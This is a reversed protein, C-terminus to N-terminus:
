AKSCPRGYSSCSAESCGCVALSIGFGLANGSDCGCNAKFVRGGSVRFELMRFRYLLGGASCRFYSARSRTSHRPAKCTLDQWHKLPKPLVILKAVVTCKRAVAHCYIMETMTKNPTPAKMIRFKTASRANLAERNPDNMAQLSCVAWLLYQKSIEPGLFCLSNNLSSEVTKAYKKTFSKPALM